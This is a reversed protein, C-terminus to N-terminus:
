TGIELPRRREEVLERGLSGTARRDEGGARRVDEPRVQQRARGGRADDDVIRREDRREHSRRVQAVPQDHEDVGAVRPEHVAVGIVDLLDLADLVADRAPMFSGSRAVVLAVDLLRDVDVELMDGALEVGPERGAAVLAHDEAPRGLDQRAQLRRVHAVRSPLVNGTVDLDLNPCRDRVLDAAGRGRDELLVLKAVLM